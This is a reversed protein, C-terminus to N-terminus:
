YESGGIAATAMEFRWVMRQMALFSSNEMRPRAGRMVQSPAKGTSRTRASRAAMLVARWDTLSPLLSMMKGCPVRPADSSSALSPAAMSAMRVWAGMTGIYMESFLCKRECTTTRM